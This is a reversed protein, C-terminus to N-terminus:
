FWEVRKVDSQAALSPQVIHGDHEGDIKGRRPAM